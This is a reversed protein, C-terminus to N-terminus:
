GHYYFLIAAALVVRYVIFPMLGVKEVVKLLLKIALLGVLFSTTLGVLLHLHTYSQVTAPETLFSILKHAGAAFIIPAGLLFSFRTAAVHNLNSLLGAAITIGSRSTGPLLAIAQACGIFFIKPFGLESIESQSKERNKTIRDAFYFVLSWILLNVGVFAPSRLSSEIWDATFLGIIGAPLSAWFICWAVRHTDRNKDFLGLLIDLLDNKFYILIALLTGLHLIADLALGQDNFNLLFPALILHGSSSVPLFETLGQIIGLIIIQILEM